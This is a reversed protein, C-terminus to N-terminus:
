TCGFATSVTFNSSNSPKNSVTVVVGGTTAGTPVQVTICSYGTACSPASWSVVTMKTGNLTVKSTGQSTGLNMGTIVLGMQVPGQSLSLSTIGPTVTFTRANSAVGNITVIVSGSTAGLPVPVVISAASWSTPASVATGNFTISSNPPETSGFGTGTITVSTNTAPTTVPGSSPSPVNLTPVVSLAVGNSAVGGVTVVVNGSTAAAPVKVGISTGKSGWSTPVAPTGNFAVTSSGQSSGFNAGTITVAYGIYTSSTSLSTITPAAAHAALAGSLLPLLVTLTSFSLKSILRM